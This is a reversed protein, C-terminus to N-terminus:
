VKVAYVLIIDPRFSATQTEVVFGEEDSAAPPPPPDITMSQGFVPATSEERRADPSLELLDRSPIDEREGKGSCYVVSPGGRM